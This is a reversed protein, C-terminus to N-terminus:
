MFIGRYLCRTNVLPECNMMINLDTMLSSGGKTVKENMEGKILLERRQRPAKTNIVKM